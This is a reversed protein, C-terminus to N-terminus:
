VEIVKYGNLEVCKKVAYNERIQVPLGLKYISHSTQICFCKSEDDYDVCDVGVFRVGTMEECEDQLRKTEMGLAILKNLYYIAEENIKLPPTKSKEEAMCQEFKEKLTPISPTIKNHQTKVVSLRDNDAPQKKPIFAEDSIVKVGYCDVVISQHVNCNNTYFEMLKKSAEELQNIDIM